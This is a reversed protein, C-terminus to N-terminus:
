CRSKRLCTGWPAIGGASKSQAYTCVGASPCTQATYHSHTFGGDGWPTSCVQVPNLHLVFKLALILAFRCLRCPKRGLALRYGGPLECSLSTPTPGRTPWASSAEAQTHSTPGSSMKSPNEGTRSGVQFLFSCAPLLFSETRVSQLWCSM